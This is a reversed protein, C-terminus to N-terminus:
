NAAGVWEKLYSQYIRAGDPVPEVPFNDDDMRQFPLFTVDSLKNGPYKIFPLYKVKDVLLVTWFLDLKRGLSKVIEDARKKHQKIKSEVAIQAADRSNVLGTNLDHVAIIARGGEILRLQNELSEQNYFSWPEPPPQVIDSVVRACGKQLAERLPGSDLAEIAVVPVPGFEGGSQQKIWKALAAPEDGRLLPNASEDQAHVREKFAPSAHRAPVWLVTRFNTVEAVEADLGAKAAVEGLWAPVTEPLRSWVNADTLAAPQVFLAGRQFEDIAQKRPPQESDAWQDNWCRPAIGVSRLQSTLEHVEPALAPQMNSTPHGLVIVPSKEQALLLVSIDPTAPTVIMDSKTPPVVTINPGRAAPMGITAVKSTLLRAVEKIKQTARDITGDETRIEMPHRGTRPDAFDLYGFEDRGERSIIGFKPGLKEGNWWDKADRDMIVPLLVLRGDNYLQVALDWELQSFKSLTYDSSIFAILAASSDVHQEIWESISGFTVTDQYDDLVLNGLNSGFYDPHCFNKVWSTDPRSYSLFIRPAPM